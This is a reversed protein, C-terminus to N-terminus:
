LKTGVADLFKEVKKIAQMERNLYSDSLRSNLLFRLGRESRPCLFSVVRDYTEYADHLQTDLHFHTRYIIFITQTSLRAVLM